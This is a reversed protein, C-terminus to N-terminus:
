LPKMRKLLSLSAFWWDGDIWARCTRMDFYRIEGNGLKIYSDAGEPANKRIEEINM